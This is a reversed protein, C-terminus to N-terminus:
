NSSSEKSLKDIFSIQIAIKGSHYTGFCFGMYEIVRFQDLSPIIKNIDDKVILEMYTPYSELTAEIIKQKDIEIKRESLLNIIIDKIGEIGELNM